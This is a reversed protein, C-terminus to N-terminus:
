DENEFIVKNDKEGLFNLHDSSLIRLCGGGYKCMHEAKRDTLFEEHEWCYPQPGLEMALELVYSRCNEGKEKEDM